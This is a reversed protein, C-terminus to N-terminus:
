RLLGMCGVWLLFAFYLVDFAFAIVHVSQPMAVLGISNKLCISLENEIHENTNIKNRDNNPTERQLSQQKPSDHQTV